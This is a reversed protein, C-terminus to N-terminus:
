SWGVLRDILSGRVKKSIHSLLVSMVDLGVLNETNVRVLNEVQQKKSAVIRELRFMQNSLSTSLCWVSKTKGTLKRMNLLRPCLSSSLTQNSAPCQPCPGLLFRGVMLLMRSPKRALVLSQNPHYLQQM